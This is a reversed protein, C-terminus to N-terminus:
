FYEFDINHLPMLWWFSRRRRRHRAQPSHIAALRLYHPEMLTRLLYVGSSTIICLLIFSRWASQEVYYEDDDDINGSGSGSTGAKRKANNASAHNKKVFKNQAGAAVAHEEAFVEAEELGALVRSYDFPEKLKGM